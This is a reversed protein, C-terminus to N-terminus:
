NRRAINMGRAKNRLIQYLLSGKFCIIKCGQVCCAHRRCGNGLSAACTCVAAADRSQRLFKEV